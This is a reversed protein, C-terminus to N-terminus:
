RPSLHIQLTTPTWLTDTQEAVAKRSYRLPGGILSDLLVRLMLCPVPSLLLSHGGKGSGSTLGCQIITSAASAASPSPTRALASDAFSDATAHRPPDPCRRRRRRTALWRMDRTEQRECSIIWDFQVSVLQALGEEAKEFFAPM